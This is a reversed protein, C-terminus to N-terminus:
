RMWNVGVGSWGSRMMWLTLAGGTQVSPSKNQSVLPIKKDRMSCGSMALAVMAGLLVIHKKM